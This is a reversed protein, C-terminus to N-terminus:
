KVVLDLIKRNLFGSLHVYFYLIYLKHKQQNNRKLNWTLPGQVNKKSTIFIDLLTFITLYRLLFMCFYINQYWFVFNSVDTQRSLNFTKFKLSFFRLIQTQEIKSRKQNVWKIKKTEFEEWAGKFGLRTFIQSYFSNLVVSVSLNRANILLVWWFQWNKKPNDLKQTQLIVRLHKTLPTAFM